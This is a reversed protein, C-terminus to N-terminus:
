ASPALAVFTETELKSEDQTWHGYVEIMPSTTTLGQANLAATM